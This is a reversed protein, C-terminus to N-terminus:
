VYLEIIDGSEDVKAKCCFPYDSDYNDTVAWNNYYEEDEDLCVGYVIDSIIDEKTPLPFCATDKRADLIEKRKAALENLYNSISDDFAKTTKIADSMTKDKRGTWAIM